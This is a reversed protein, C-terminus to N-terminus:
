APSPVPQLAAASQFDAYVALGDPAAARGEERALSRALALVAIELQADTPERTTINQMWMGPRVLWQIPKPSNPRASLRQLEYAVGAIPLAMPVKILVMLLQNVLANEHLRPVFPFIAVHILVAVMVVVFLFSTGCRPHLTTFGRASDVTLPLGSEYAWIAKHEAGHYQFVRKMEATRAVASIYGLLIAVRFFGDVLHFAFGQTDLNLGLLRGVAYTLLHPAAIFLGVMVLTSIALLASSGLGKDAAQGPKGEEGPLAQEASFMLASYGNHLSELLVVAGRLLPWRLFKLGPLFTTWQQERVAISGDPRRVAVVFSKPSRMMVGELVAQGGIYPKSM